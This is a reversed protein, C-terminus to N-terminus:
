AGLSVPVELYPSWAPFTYTSYDPQPKQLINHAPPCIIQWTSTALKYCALRTNIGDYVSCVIYNGCPSWSPNGKQRSDSSIQQTKDTALDYIMLQFVGNIQQVYAIKNRNPCYSPSTAVARKKGNSESIRTINNGDRDMIYVHPINFEYDSCFAIQGNNLIAPSLNRGNNHSIKVYKGKKGKKGPIYRYIDTKGEASLCILAEKGDSSFSPLMNSGNFDTLITFTGVFDTMMLRMNLPTYESYLLHPTVKDVTWCPAIYTTTSKIQKGKKDTGPVLIKEYSGDYHAVCVYNNSQSNVLQKCYAIKSLFPSEEGTLEKYVNHSIGHVWWAFTDDQSFIFPAKELRIPLEEGKIFIGNGNKDTKYLRWQISNEDKTSMNLTILFHGQGKYWLFNDNQFFGEQYYDMLTFRDTFELDRRIIKYINGLYDAQPGCVVVVIPTKQNQQAQVIYGEDNFEDQVETAGVSMVALMAVCLIKKIM